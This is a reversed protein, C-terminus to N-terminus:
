AGVSLARAKGQYRSGPFVFWPHVRIEYPKGRFRGDHRFFITENGKANAAKAVLAGNPAYVFLDYDDGDIPQAGWEPNPTATTVSVEIQAGDGLNVTLAFHDCVPDSRGGLCDTGLYNPESAIFPGGSWTLVRKTKLLKGSAPSAAQAGSASVLGLVIAVV